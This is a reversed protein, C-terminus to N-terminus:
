RMAVAASVAPVVYLQDHVSWSPRRPPLGRRSRFRHSSGSRRSESRCRRAAPRGRGSGPQRGRLVFSMSSRTRRRAPVTRDSVSGSASVGGLSHCLLVRDRGPARRRALDCRWRRRRCGPSRRRLRCCSPSSRSRWARPRGDRDGEHRRKGDVAGPRQRSRRRVDGRALGAVRDCERVRCCGSSHVVARECEDYRAAPGCWADRAVVRAVRGRARARNRDSSLRDGDRAERQGPPAVAVIVYPAVLPPPGPAVAVAVVPACVQCAWCFARLAPVSM